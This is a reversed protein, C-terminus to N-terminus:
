YKKSFSIKKSISSKLLFDTIKQDLSNLCRVCLLGSGALVSPAFDAISRAPLRTASIALRTPGPRAPVSAPSRSGLGKRLRAWSFVYATRAIAMPLQSSSSPPRLPPSRFAINWHWAADNAYWQVFDAYTYACGNRAWRREPM